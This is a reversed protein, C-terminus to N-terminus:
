FFASGCAWVSWDDGILVSSEAGCAIERVRAGDPLCGTLPLLRRPVPNATATSSSEQALQGFTNRGWGWVQGDRTKALVPSWGSAVDEVWGGELGGEVEAPWQVQRPLGAVEEERGREEDRWGWGLQGYKNAGMTWVRGRDDLVVTHQWGCCVKVM